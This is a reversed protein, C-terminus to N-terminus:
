FYKKFAHMFGFPWREPATQGDENAYEDMNFTYLHRCDVRFKNLLYAVQQYCRAPNPTIIVVKRGEERAQHIRHFMDTVWRFGMEADPLISIRYDPNRHKALDARKIGIVKRVAKLDRFPVFPAPQFSWKGM